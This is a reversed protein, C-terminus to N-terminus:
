CGGVLAERSVEEGAIFAHRLRGDRARWLDPRLTCFALIGRGAGARVQEGYGFDRGRYQVAYGQEIMLRGIDIRGGEASPVTCRMIPRGFSQRMQDDNEYACVVVQDAVLASLHSRADEGCGQLQGDPRRCQQELEPADIGYIRISVDGMTLTDGDHVDSAEVLSINVRRQAVGGFGIAVVALAIVAGVVAGLGAITLPRVFREVSDGPTLAVIASVGITGVAIILLDLLPLIASGITVENRKLAEGIASESVTTRHAWLDELLRLLGIHERVSLVQVCSSVLCVAGALLLACRVWLPWSRASALFLVLAAILLVAALYEPNEM